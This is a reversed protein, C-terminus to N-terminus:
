VADNPSFIEGDFPIVSCVRAFQSLLINTTVYFKPPTHRFQLVININLRNM